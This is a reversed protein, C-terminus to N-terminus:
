VIICTMALCLLMVAAPRKTSTNLQNICYHIRLFAYEISYVILHQVQAGLGCGKLSGLCSQSGLLSLLVKFGELFFVLLLSLRRDKCAELSSSLLEDVEVLDICGFLRKLLKVFLFLQKLLSFNIARSLCPIGSGLDAPAVM